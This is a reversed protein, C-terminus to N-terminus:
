IQCFYCKMSCRFAARPAQKGPDIRVTFCKLCNEPRLSKLNEAAEKRRQQAQRREEKEQARVARQKEREEKKEKAKLRDAEIEEKTRRKRAPSPTGPGDPRPPSLACTQSSKGKTESFSKCQHDSSQDEKLAASVTIQSSDDRNAAPKTEADTEDESESIEWTKARRLVSM